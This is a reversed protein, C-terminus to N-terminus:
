RAAVRTQARKFANLRLAVRLRLPFLGKPTFKKEYERNCSAFFNPVHLPPFSNIKIEHRTM